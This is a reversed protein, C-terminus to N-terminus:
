ATSNEKTRRTKQPRINLEAMIEKFSKNENYLRIIEQGLEEDSLNKSATM